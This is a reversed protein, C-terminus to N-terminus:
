GAEHRSLHCHSSPKLKLPPVAAAPMAPVSVVPQTTTCRTCARDAQTRLHHMSGEGQGATVAEASVAHHCVNLVLDTIPDHAPNGAGVQRRRECAPCIMVLAAVYAARLRYGVRRHAAM